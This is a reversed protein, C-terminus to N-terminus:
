FPGSLASTLTRAGHSICSSRLLNYREAKEFAVQVNWGGEAYMGRTIVQAGVWGSGRPAKAPLRPRYINFNIDETVVCIKRVTALEEADGNPM